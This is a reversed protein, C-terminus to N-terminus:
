KGKQTVLIDPFYNYSQLLILLTRSKDTDNGAIKVYLTEKDKKSITFWEGDIRVPLKKSGEGEYSVKVDYSIKRDIMVHPELWWNDGTITINYEGGVATTEIQSMSIKLPPINKDKCCVCCMAVVLMM